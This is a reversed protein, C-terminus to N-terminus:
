MVWKVYYPFAALLAVVVVAVWLAIKSARRSSRACSGDSCAAAQGRYTTAFAAGLLVVTLGLFWPRYPELRISAAGLAGAGVTAFLVPGLCCASAVVSAVVSGVVAKM